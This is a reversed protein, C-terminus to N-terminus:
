MYTYIYNLIYIYEKEQYVIEFYLKGVVRAAPTRVM